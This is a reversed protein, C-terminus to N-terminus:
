EYILEELSRKPVHHVDQADRYYKIDGNSGVDEIVVREAPKGLALVLVIELYPPLELLAALEERKVSSMMCGGFGKEVAGLMMTQAAIGTDLDYQRKIREDGLVVIYAAPREGEAPGDWDKLYGAFKLLPFVQDTQKKDCILGFKLGQLNASCPAHRALDVLEVLTERSIRETEDFRRYSRNRLVLDKFMKM